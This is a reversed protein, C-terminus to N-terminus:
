MGRYVDKRDGIKVVLVILTADNIQYIIRYNGARVRCIGPAGKISEM